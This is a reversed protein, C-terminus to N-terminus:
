APIANFINPPPNGILKEFMDVPLPASFLYGQAYDCGAEMLLDRQLVSEVGEAIVKLGLKHAMVIIAECLALDNSNPVLNSIYMRDIKLYDIDFKKLYSLSSYGTGFDDIAVQIGADRFAYLQDTVTADIDLLLNETIEVAISQGPLGLTDLVDVWSVHNRSNTNQFQVPSKNVSIQFLPHYSKRLKAAEIAAQQFVWDGIEIILGTDEAIPIFDEPSILGQRPHQWRILAEAKYVKGTKLEVIPQYHLMFENNGLAHRLDSALRMRTQAARQMSPTFYHYRNRGHDKAAYMAQDANRLLEDIDSADDPYLTIGISASVYTVDEGLMFPEALKHLINQTIREVNGHDELENLIITFEDGGLRAVTDSERVCERIREAAEILLIDGMDHGMTDNVEKFRDLDIFLIAMMLGDRKCKKIEHEMRDRFMRRNPLSTLPDFNAQQWILEESKKKQTIDSFLAVYRYVSHDPKYITNISLWELYAEGNKRNNWKEGQWKGTSDIEQWMSQFLASSRLNTDLTTSLRGKIEDATYGTIQTFAPNTTVIVGREDTVMMAETSNQYVLSFLELEDKALSKEIAIGALKAAQEILEIDPDTPSCAQRHYIAFSGLVKGSIDKIPESWCAALGAEAALAKYDHWYPHTQIDEVVVREGTFSATGCSGIGMGIAIGHIAENYFGPLNPAAGHLLRKGEKDMLLISCVIAPNQAEIGLVLKELIEMLPADHALLELIHNRMQDYLQILKYETIDQIAGRLKIRNRKDKEPVCVTRVWKRRGKATTMELELDYPTGYAVADNVASEIKRLSEGKFFSLGFEASPQEISDLEHIRMVEETWYGAGTAIDFEWGGVKAIASMEQLLQENAILAREAQKRETIDGVVVRCTDSDALSLALVRIQRLENAGRWVSVECEQAEMSKFVNDLCSAFAARDAETVFMSLHGGILQDREMGLLQAAALNAQVITTNKKLIFYGVPASDFLDTYRKLSEEAEHRSRVLEENMTRLEETSTTLEENTSQLEENTSMLEEHSTQMEERLNQLAARSAQLETRAAQLKQEITRIRSNELVKQAPPKSSEIVSPAVTESFIVVLTELPESANLLPQVIIDVYAMEGHTREQRALVRTTQQKLLADHFAENLGSNLGDRAMALINLSARGVTPELYNGTKGSIYLIDGITNVLVAARAYHQTLLQELLSQYNSPKKSKMPHKLESRPMQNPLNLSITSLLEVQKKHLTKQRLYIQLPAAAPEFLDTSSGISESSGLILLGNTNLSHHFRSLLVEHMDPSLYILLNRCSLIDIKSFPPDTILNHPAFVIMERIDKRIQYGQEHVTFFEALRKASVDAAIGSPYIGKRARTISATNLDTAFIQLSFKKEPSIAPNEALFAALAEKFIMALTYAEEGTSCAACWARLALGSEPSSMLRQRIERGLQEWVEPERFFRTVGILLESFLINVETPSEELIRLYQSISNAHCIGIRRGIRRYFTSKKYSSFDQGTKEQLLRFVRSLEVHNHDAKELSSGYYRPFAKLAALIKAPLKKAEDVIDAHGSDIINHPAEHATTSNPDQVAVLGAQENIIRLGLVGDTGNGSLLVGVAREHLDKALVNFFADIPQMGGPLPEPELRFVDNIIRLHHGTQTIFIQNPRIGLGDSIEIVDDKLGRLAAPWPLDQKLAIVIAMGSAKPLHRLFQHLSGQDDETAGIGVVPFSSPNTSM